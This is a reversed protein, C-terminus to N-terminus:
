EVEEDADGAQGDEDEGELEAVEDDEELADEDVDLLSLDRTGEVFALQGLADELLSAEDDDESADLLQSLVEAPRKGGIQGLSWISARRIGPAADDLLDILDLVSEHLELEGATKVAELRLAPSSSRLEPLVQAKWAEDASRAM